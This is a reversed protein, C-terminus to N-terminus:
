NPGHLTSGPGPRARIELFGSAMGPSFAVHDYSYYDGRKRRYLPRAPKRYGNEPGAVPRQGQSDHPFALLGALHECSDASGTCLLLSPPTFDGSCLCVSALAHAASAPDGCEVPGVRFNAWCSFAPRKLFRSRLFLRFVFLPGEVTSRKPRSSLPPILAATRIFQKVPSLRLFLSASITPRSHNHLSNTRAFLSKMACLIRSPATMECGCALRNRPLFRSLLLM